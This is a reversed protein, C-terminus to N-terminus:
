RFNYCIKQNFFYEFYYNGSENAKEFSNNNNNNDGSNYAVEESNDCIIKANVVVYADDKVEDGKDGEANGKSQQMFVLDKKYFLFSDDENLTSNVDIKLVYNRFLLSNAQQSFKKFDEEYGLKLDSILYDLGVKPMEMPVLKLSENQKTIILSGGSAPIVGNEYAKRCISEPHAEACNEPCVFIKTKIKESFNFSKESAKCSLIVSDRSIAPKELILKEYPAFPIFDTPKFGFLKKQKTYSLMFHAKFNKIDFSKFINNNNNNNLNNTNFNNENKNASYFKAFEKSFFSTKEDPNLENELSKDYHFQYFVSIQNLSDKSLCISKSNFTNIENFDVKPRNADPANKNLNHLNKM